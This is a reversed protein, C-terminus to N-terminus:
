NLRELSFSKVRVGYARSYPLPTWKETATRNNSCLLRTEKSCRRLESQRRTSVLLTLIRIFGERSGKAPSRLRLFVNGKAHEGLAPAFSDGKETSCPLSGGRRMVEELETPPPAVNPFFPCSVLDVCLLTTAEPLFLVMAARSASAQTGSIRGNFRHGTTKTEM